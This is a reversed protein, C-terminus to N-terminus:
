RLMLFEIRKRSEPLMAAIMVTSNADTKASGMGNIGTCKSKILRSVSESGAIAMPM